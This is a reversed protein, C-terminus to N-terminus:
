VVGIKGNTHSVVSGDSGQNSPDADMKRGGGGDEPEVDDGGTDDDGDMDDDALEHDPVYDLTQFKLGSIDVYGPAVLYGDSYHIYSSAAEIIGSFTRIEATAGCLLLAALFM